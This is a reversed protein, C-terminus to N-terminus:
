VRQDVFAQSSVFICNVSKRIDLRTFCFRLQASDFSSLMCSDTSCWAQSLGVHGNPRLCDLQFRLVRQLQDIESVHRWLKMGTSSVAERLQALVEAVRSSGSFDHESSHHLLRDVEAPFFSNKRQSIM